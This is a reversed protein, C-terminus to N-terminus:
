MVFKEMNISWELFSPFYAYWPAVLLYLVMNIVVLLMFSSPPSPLPFPSLPLTPSFFLSKKQLLCIFIYKSLKQILLLWVIWIFYILIFAKQKFLFEITWGDFWKSYHPLTIFTLHFENIVFVNVQLWDICMQASMCILNNQEPSPCATCCAKCLINM